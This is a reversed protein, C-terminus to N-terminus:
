SLKIAEIIWKETGPRWGSFDFNGYETIVNFGAKDLLYVLTERSILQMDFEHLFTETEGQKSVFVDQKIHLRMTGANYSTEGTKWTKTDQDQPNPLKFRLKPTQWSKSGPYILDLALCGKDKLHKHICSLAEMMENESLLHHFDGTGIFAFDYDTGSLHLGTVDGASFRLNKNGSYRKEAVAIMEPEIDVATVQFGSEAMGSAIKGTACMLSLVKSGYKKAPKSYFEIEASRSPEGLGWLAAHKAYNGRSVAM